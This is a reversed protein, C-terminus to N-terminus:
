TFTVNGDDDVSLITLLNFTETRPAYENTNKLLRASVRKNNTNVSLTGEKSGRKSPSGNSYDNFGGGSGIWKGANNRGLKENLDLSSLSSSWPGNKIKGRVKLNPTSYIYSIICVTVSRITCYVCLDYEEPDLSLETVRSAPCGSLASSDQTYEDYDAEIAAVDTQDNYCCYFDYM